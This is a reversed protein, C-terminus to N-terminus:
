CLNIISNENVQTEDFFLLDWGYQKFIGTREKKWNEIGGRFENKHRKYFVEIAIKKGNTNVFDPNKRGVTFEGNGVFKYPLNHDNIIKEFKIELSSKERRALCKKIQAVTLKRGKKFASKPIIGTKIGMKKSPVGRKALSIKLRHEPTEPGRVMGICSQRIKEKHQETKIYIGKPM